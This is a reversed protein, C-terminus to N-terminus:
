NITRNTDGLHSSLLDDVVSLQYIIGINTCLERMKDILESHHSSLTSAPQNWTNEDPWEAYAVWINEKEIDRHLRSGLGGRTKKIILTLQHWTEKFAKEHDKTVEFEYIVCFM